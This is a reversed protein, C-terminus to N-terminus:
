DKRSIVDRVIESIDKVTIKEELGELKLADELMILCSPCSVVLVNADTEYAERVRIRNPSDKTESFFGGGFGTYSNGGGGGCCFANEKNREMEVLEVNPIAELIERAAAYEKNWRGLFCPDHYTVRIKTDFGKSLELKRDKILNRLLQTYHMVYFNGGFKPYDNKMVNYSHPSLTVVKRVNLERLLQINSRALLEFLGKEGLENAESGSCNEKAGLIGFSVESRSLIYGLAKAAQQVRTDYSGLDGVYYLFEVSPDYQVIGTDNAWEGRRTRSLGFPNGHKYINELVERVKPPVLGNEVIKGRTTLYLETLNIETPCMQKCYGCMSCLYYNEILDKNFSKSRELFHKLLLIKGRASYTEFGMFRRAPCDDRCYGCKACVYLEEIFNFTETM